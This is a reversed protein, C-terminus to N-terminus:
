PQDFIILIEVRRNQEQNENSDNPKVPRAEGFGVSKIQDNSLNDQEALFV